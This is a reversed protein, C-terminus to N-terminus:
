FCEFTRGLKKCIVGEGERNKMDENERSDNCVMQYVYCSFIRNPKQEIHLMVNRDFYVEHNYTVEWSETFPITKLRTGRENCHFHLLAAGDSGVQTVAVISLLDLEDEYDVIKFTEQEPDDDLINYRKKVIRGSATVTVANNVSNERNTEIIFDETVEQQGAHNEIEKLKLVKVLNPGVHLIRGSSDPHFSIWDPELSCCQMDQIGNKALTHDKLSCIHFIGKQSKKNPTFIYHWPYGGIQFTSELSSVEFLLDPTDTIKINCPIGFPYRGVIGVKGNWNYEQGLDVQHQMFQESITQFSYLRVLGSSHTVILMGHSMAVDTMTNGFVKKDIQLMGIFTLPLVSFIGLFFLVSPQSGAQRSAVPPKQQSSKVTMVEQPSDWSLYRFKCHSALYVKELIEGTNVSVRLLWNHATLVALSPKYDSLSPLVEGVPCELLLADEIKQSKPCAPMQYIIRPEQTISSVCCRYNDFYVKGSQYVIPSTSHTTWVKKFTTSEQCILKRLIGMNKRYVVGADKTYFGQSRRTLLCCVSHIQFSHRRATASSSSSSSFM